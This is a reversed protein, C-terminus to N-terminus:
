CDARPARIRARGRMASTAQRARTPHLPPPPEESVITVGVGVGAGGGGGGGGGGGVGTAFWAAITMSLPGAASAADPPENL